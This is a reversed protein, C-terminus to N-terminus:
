LDRTMHFEILKVDCHGIGFTDELIDTLDRKVSEIGTDPLSEWYEDNGEEITVEFKYTRM